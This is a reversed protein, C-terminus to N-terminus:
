LGQKGQEKKQIDRRSHPHAAFSIETQIGARSLEGVTWGVCNTLYYDTNEAGQRERQRRYSDFVADWDKKLQEGGDEKPVNERDRVGLYMGGVIARRVGLDWLESTLKQWAEPSKASDPVGPPTLKPRPSSAMTSVLYSVTGSEKSLFSLYEGSKGVHKEEELVIVPPTKEPEKELIRQLIADVDRGGPEEDPFDPDEVYATHSEPINHIEFFPHVFIRVLGKNEEIREVLARKEEPSLEWLNLTRNPIEPTFGEELPGVPPKEMLKTQTSSPARVRLRWLWM